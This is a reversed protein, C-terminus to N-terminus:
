RSVGTYLSFEREMDFLEDAYSNSNLKSDSNSVGGSSLLSQIRKQEKAKMEELMPILHTRVNSMSFLMASNFGGKVNVNVNSNGNEEAEDGKAHDQDQDQIPIMRYEPAYRDMYLARRESNLRARDREYRTKSYEVDHIQIPMETETSYASFLSVVSMTNQLLEEEKEEDSRKDNEHIHVNHHSAIQSELAAIVFRKLSPVFDAPVVTFEEM